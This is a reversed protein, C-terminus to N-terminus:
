EGKKPGSLLVVIGYQRARLSNSRSRSIFVAHTCKEKHDTKGRAESVIAFM